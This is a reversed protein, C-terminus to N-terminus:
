TVKHWMCVAKLSVPCSFHTMFKVGAKGREEEVRSCGKRSKLGCTNFDFVPGTQWMIRHTHTQQITTAFHIQLKRKPLFYCIANHHIVWTIHKGQNKIVGSKLICLRQFWSIQGAVEWKINSGKVCFLMRPYLCCQRCAVVFCYDRECLRRKWPKERVWHWTYLLYNKPTAPQLCGTFKPGLKGNFLAVIKGRTYLCLYPFVQEMKIGIISWCLFFCWM